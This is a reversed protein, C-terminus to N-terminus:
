FISIFQCIMGRQTAETGDSKPPCQLPLCPGWPGWQSVECDRPCAM